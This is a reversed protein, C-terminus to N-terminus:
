EEGFEEILGASRAVGELDRDAQALRAALEILGTNHYGQGAQVARDLVADLATRAAPPDILALALLKDRDRYGDLKGYAASPLARALLPRASDPDTLALALAARVGVDRNAPFPGLREPSRAALVRDRAGALDPHGVQRARYLVMAATGAGGGNDDSYGVPDSVIRDLALDITELARERNKSALRLAVGALTLARITPVEISQALDLAASPDRLAIRYAIQQRSSYQALSNGPRLEALWKTATPLDVEALRVCSQGLWRNFESADAIPDLLRRARAPDSLVVRSAVMGRTYTDLGEASLPEALAAAEDILKRAADRRGARYVLEAAQALAWPRNAQPLGRARLVAEEALRLGPVPAAPLLRGALDCVTRFGEIGGASKLLALAEEPDERACEVLPRGGGAQDLLPTLDVKGDTREREEAAWRRAAPFDIQAMSQVIKQGDDKARAREAWMRELLQRGVKAVAARDADTVKPAPAPPDSERRLRLVVGTSGADAPVTALRFGDARASVYAPGEYLGALTFRGAADTLTACPRPGDANNFVKAAVVPHGTLDTVTGSVSLDAHVMRVEGYDHTAGVKASWEAMTVDRYGAASLSLSYRDGAQLVDSDFRGDAGTTAVQRAGGHGIPGSGHELYRVSHAMQVAVGAVPRGAGDVARVRLHAAFDESIVVRLTGEPKAPDAALPAATIQKGKRATVGILGGEPNIGRIVFAGQDDSVVPGGRYFNSGSYGVSVTAGAVPKGDPDEVVGALDVTPVLAFRGFDRREGPGVPLPESLSRRFPNTAFRMVAYGEAAEPRVSVIGAPVLLEVKGSADSVGKPVVVSPGAPLAVSVSLGAGAVGKGTRTDILTAVVRAAPEFGTTIATQEGARVKTPPVTRPFHAAPGTYPFTIQYAGPVLNALSVEGGSKAEADAKVELLRGAAQLTAKIRVDAAMGENPPVLRLTVAGARELVVDMREGPLVWARGTGFGDTEFRVAVSHGAPVGSVTFSGDAAVQVPYGDWFWDPTEAFVVPRGGFRAFNDPGLAVPKVRLGAVAKGAADIFRASVSSPDHLNTTSLDGYRTLTVYGSTGGAARILVRVFNVSSAQDFQFRGEADTRALLSKDEGPLTGLVMLGVKAHSVPRGQYTVLGQWAWPPDTATVVSPLCLSLLLVQCFM